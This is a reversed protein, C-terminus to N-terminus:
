YNTCVTNAVYAEYGDANRYVIVSDSNGCYGKNDEFIGDYKLNSITIKKACTDSITPNGSLIANIESDNCLQLRKQNSSLFFTVAAEKLNNRMEESTDERAKKMIANVSGTAILIIVALIVIVAMLEM